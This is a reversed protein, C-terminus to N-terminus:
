DKKVRKLCRAFGMRLYLSKSVGPFAGILLFISSVIDCENSLFEAWYTNPNFCSVGICKGLFPLVLENSLVGDGARITYDLDYYCRVGIAGSLLLFVPNPDLAAFRAGLAM